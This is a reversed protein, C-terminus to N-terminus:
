FSCPFTKIDVYTKTSTKTKLSAIMGIRNNYPIYFPEYDYPLRDVFVIKKKQNRLYLVRTNGQNLIIVNDNIAFIKSLEIDDLLRVEVKTNSTEFYYLSGNESDDEGNNKSYFLRQNLLQPKYNSSILFLPTLKKSTLSLRYLLLNDELEFIGHSLFGKEKVIYLENSKVDLTISSSRFGLSFSDKIVNRIFIRLIDGLSSKFSFIEITDNVYMLRVDTPLTKVLFLSDKYYYVSKSKEDFFYPINEKYGIISYSYVYDVSGIFFLIGIVITRM